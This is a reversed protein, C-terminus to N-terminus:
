PNHPNAFAEFRQYVEPMMIKRSKAPLLFRINEHSRKKM